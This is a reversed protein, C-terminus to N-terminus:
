QVNLKRRELNKKTKSLLHPANLGEGGFELYRLILGARIHEDIVINRHKDLSISKIADKIEEDSFINQIKLISESEDNSMACYNNYLLKKYLNFVMRSDQYFEKTDLIIM